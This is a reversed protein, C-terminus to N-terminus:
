ILLNYINLTDVTQHVVFMYATALSSLTGAAVLHLVVIMRNLLDNMTTSIPPVYVAQKVYGWLFYDCLPCFHLTLDESGKCCILCM